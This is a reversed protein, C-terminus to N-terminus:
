LRGLELQHRRAFRGAHGARAAARQCISVLQDDQAVWVQPVCRAHFGHKAGERQDDQPRKLTFAKDNRLKQDGPRTTYVQAGSLKQVLQGLGGAHEPRADSM